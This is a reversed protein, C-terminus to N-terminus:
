VVVQFIEQEIVAAMRLVFLQLKEHTVTRLMHRFIM